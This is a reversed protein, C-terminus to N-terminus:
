VLTIGQPMRLVSFKSIEPLVRPNLVTDLQEKVKVYQIRLRPVTEMALVVALERLRAWREPGNEISTIEETMSMPRYDLVTYGEELHAVLSLTSSEFEEAETKLKFMLDWLGRERQSTTGTAQTLPDLRMSKMIHCIKDVEAQQLPQATEDQHSRSPQAADHHQSRFPWLSM